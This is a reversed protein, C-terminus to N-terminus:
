QWFFLIGWYEYVSMAFNQLLDHKDYPFPRVTKMARLWLIESHNVNAVFGPEPEV